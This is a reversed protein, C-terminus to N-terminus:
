TYSKFSPKVQLRGPPRRIRRSQREGTSKNPSLATTNSTDNELVPSGEDSVPKATQNPVTPNACHLPSDVTDLLTYQAEESIRPRMQNAHRREVAEKILVDYVAHEHRFLVRAPIWKRGGRRFDMVWVTDEPEFSKPRTGYHRNFQNEMNKDREATSHRPMTLLTLPTRLQHGLFNEAPSRGEPSSTCPTSRYSLLFKQVAETTTESNKLKELARKFTDVFREAQGNSQPHYPPSRIHVIGNAKCFDTFEISTSQSDNDSVLTEPYGFQAFLRDLQRITAKSTTSSMEIVEPWKSYAGVVILFKKEM